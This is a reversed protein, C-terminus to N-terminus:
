IPRRGGFGDELTHWFAISKENLIYCLFITKGDRLSPFDILGKDMDRLIVGSAQLEDVLVGLEKVLETFRAQAEKAEGNSAGAGELETGLQRIDGRIQSICQLQGRIEPLITQAQEVTFYKSFEQLKGGLNQRIHGRGHSYKRLQAIHSM